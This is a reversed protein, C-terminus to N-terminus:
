FCSMDEEIRENAWGFDVFSIAARTLEWNNPLYKYSSAKSGLFGGKMAGNTSVAFAKIASFVPMPTRCSQKCPMLRPASHRDLVKAETISRSM